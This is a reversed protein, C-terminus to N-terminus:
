ATGPSSGMPHFCNAFMLAHTCAHQAQLQMDEAYHQLHSPGQSLWHPMAPAGPTGDNPVPIFAFDVKSVDPPVYDLPVQLSRRGKVVSPVSTIHRVHM